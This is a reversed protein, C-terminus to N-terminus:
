VVFDTRCYITVLVVTVTSFIAVYWHSINFQLSICYIIVSSNMSCFLMDYAQAPIIGTCSKTVFKHLWVVRMGFNEDKLQLANPQQFCLNEVSVSTAVSRHFPWNNSSDASPSSDKFRIETRSARSFRLQVSSQRVLSVWSVRLEYVPSQRCCM